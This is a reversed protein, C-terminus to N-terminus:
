VVVFDSGINERAAERAFWAGMITDDHKGVPYSTLEDIFTCMPCGCSEAGNTLPNRHNFITWSGSEFEAAMSPLGIYEDRKQRGTTFGRITPISWGPEWSPLVDIWDLISQQYANNEVFIMDPNWKKNLRMIHRATEPGTFHGRIIEMPVKMHSDPDFAMVFLITYDATEAKSIALDVGIYIRWKSNVMSDPTSERISKEIWKRKFLADEDSIPINRFGRDFAIRNKSRREELAQRTWKEEWMLPELNENYAQFLIAFGNTKNNRM